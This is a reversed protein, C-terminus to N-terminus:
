ESVCLPPTDVSWRGARCYVLEPGLRTFGRTCTYRHASGRSGSVGVVRGRALRPLLAPDCQGMAACHVYLNNSYNLINYFLLNLINSDLGHDLGTTLRPSSGGRTTHAPSYM